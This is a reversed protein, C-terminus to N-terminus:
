QQRNDVGYFRTLKEQWSLPIVGTPGNRHKSLLLEATNDKPTGNTKYVDNRYIFMVIDADQEISGSERLDSLLPRKDGRDEVKRSLQSLAIIPINMDKAMLKLARSISGIELDKRRFDDGRMLQIYDIIAMKVGHDRIWRRLVSGVQHVTEVNRDEIHVPWGSVRGAADVLREWDEKVMGGRRFKMANVGSEGALLRHALQKKGMELSFFGVPNGTSVAGRVFDLALATKGVSPRAAVIILDSPQWGCTMWDLLSFGSAIGTIKDFSGLRETDSIVDSVVDGISSPGREDMDCSVAMIASQAKTITSAPDDNSEYCESMIKGAATIMGRLASKEKLIKCHAQVDISPPFELIKSIYSAGGSSELKNKGALVTVVEAADPQRCECIADFICQHATTYFDTPVLVTKIEDAYGLFCAALVSEEIEIARPMIKCEPTQM